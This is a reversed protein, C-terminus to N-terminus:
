PSIGGKRHTRLPTRLRTRCIGMLRKLRGAEDQTMMRRLTFDYVELEGDGLHIEYHRCGYDDYVLIQDM